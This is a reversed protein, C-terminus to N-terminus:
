GGDSSWVCVFPIPIEWAASGRRFHEIVISCGRRHQDCRLQPRCFVRHLAGLIPRILTSLTLQLRIRFSINVNFNRSPLSLILISCYLLTLLSLSFSSIFHFFIRFFFFSRSVRVLGWRWGIEGLRSLRRRVRCELCRLGGV